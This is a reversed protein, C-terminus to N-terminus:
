KWNMQFIGLLNRKLSDATNAVRSKVGEVEDSTVETVDDQRINVYVTQYKEPRQMKLKTTAVEEVTTLDVSQELEFVKQSTYSELEALDKELKAIEQETEFVMVHKSIMFYASVSLLLIMFILRFNLKAKKAAAKKKAAIQKKTAKVRKELRDEHELTYALNGYGM